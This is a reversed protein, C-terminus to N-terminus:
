LVTVFCEYFLSSDENNYAFAGFPKTLDLKKAEM